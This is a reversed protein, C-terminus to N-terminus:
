TKWCSRSGSAESWKKEKELDAYYEYADCPALPQHARTHRYPSLDKDEANSPLGMTAILAKLAAKLEADSRVKDLRMRGKAERIPLLTPEGLAPCNDEGGSGKLLDIGIAKSTGDVGILPDVLASLAM